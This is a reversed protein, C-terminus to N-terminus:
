RRACAADVERLLTEVPVPKQMYARVNPPMVLEPDCFGSVLLVPLEPAIIRLKEALQLGTLKPMTQDTLVVDFEDPSRQLRELADLVFQITVVQYGARELVRRTLKLVTAEDDICLIKKIGPFLSRPAGDAAGGAVPFYIDVTTGDRLSSRALVAGGHRTAIAQVMSLGLGACGHQRWTTFFPEFAHALTEQTMGVGTDRVAVRVAPGPRTAHLSAFEESLAVKSVSLQIEGGNPEVARRANECLNAIARYVEWSVGDVPPCSQVLDLSAHVNAPLDDLTQAAVDAAVDSVNVPEIADPPSREFSSLRNLLEGARSAARATETLWPRLPSDRGLEHMLLSVNAIIPEIQGRLERSLGSGIVGIMELRQSRKVSQEARKSSTVDRTLICLSAVESGEFIPAVVTNTWRDLVSSYVDYSTTVGERFAKEFAATLVPHYQPEVFDFPRAKGILDELHLGPEVHNVFTYRYDRDIVCVFDFPNEVVSRWRSESDRLAKEARKTETVDSFLLLVCKGGLEACDVASARVAAVLEAGQRRLLVLEGRAAGGALASSVLTECAERDSEAVYPFPAGTGVLEDREWGVLATFAPNLDRHVGRADLVVLGEPLGAVIDRYLGESLSGDPRSVPGDSRSPIDSM